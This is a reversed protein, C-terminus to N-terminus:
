FFMRFFKYAFLMLVVVVGFVAYGQMNGLIGLIEAGQELLIDNQEILLEAQEVTM